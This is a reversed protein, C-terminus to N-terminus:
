PKERILMKLLLITSCHQLIQAFIVCRIRLLKLTRTSHKKETQTIVIIISIGVNSLAMKM